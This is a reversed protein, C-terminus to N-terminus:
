RNSLSPFALPIPIKAARQNILANFEPLGHLSSFDTDKNAAQQFKSSPDSDICVTLHSLALDTRGMLAYVCALNYRASCRNPEKALCIHLREIAQQLRSPNNDLKHLQILAIGWLEYLMASIEVAPVAVSSDLLQVARENMARQQVPNLTIDSEMLLCAALESEFRSRLLANTVMGMGTELSQRSERLLPLRESPTNALNNIERLVFQSGLWYPRWDAGPCHMALQFRERTALAMTRRREGPPSRKVIEMLCTGILSHAEFSDPHLQLAEQCKVIARQFIDMSLTFESADRARILLATAEQILGKANPAVPIEQAHAASAVMLACTIRLLNECKM